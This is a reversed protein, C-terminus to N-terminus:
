LIGSLTMMLKIIENFAGTQTIRGIIQGEEVIYVRRINKSVMITMIQVLPTDPEATVLPSSMVDEMKTYEADLGKGFCRRILDRESAFGVPLGARSIVLSWVKKDLMMRVANAVSDSADILVVDGEM